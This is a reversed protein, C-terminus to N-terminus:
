VFTSNLQQIQNIYLDPVCLVYEGESAEPNSDATKSGKRKSSGLQGGKNGSGLNTNKNLSSKSESTSPAPKQESSEPRSDAAKSNKRNSFISWRKKKEPIPENSEKVSSKSEATPPTSKVEDNVISSKSKAKQSARRKSHM